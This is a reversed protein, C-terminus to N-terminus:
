CHRTRPRDLGSSGSCAASLTSGDVWAHCPVQVILRRHSDAFKQWRCSLGLSKADDGTTGGVDVIGHRHQRMM